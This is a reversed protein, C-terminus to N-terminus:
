QTSSLDNARKSDPRTTTEKGCKGKGIKIKIEYSDTQFNKLRNLNLATYSQVQKHPFSRGCIDIKLKILGCNPHAQETSPAQLKTTTTTSPRTM